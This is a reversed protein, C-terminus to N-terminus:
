IIKVQDFVVTKLSLNKEDKFLTFLKKHKVISSLNFLKITILTSDSGIRLKSIFSAAFINTLMNIRRYGRLYRCFTYRYSYM